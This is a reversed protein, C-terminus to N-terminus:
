HRLMGAWEESQQVLDAVPVGERLELPVRELLVGAVLLFTWCSHEASDLMSDDSYRSV